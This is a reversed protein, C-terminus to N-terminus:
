GVGLHTVRIMPSQDSTSEQLWLRGAGCKASCSKTLGAHIPAATLQTHWPKDLFPAYGFNMLIRFSELHCKSNPFSSLDNTEPCVMHNWLRERIRTEWIENLCIPTNHKDDWRHSLKPYPEFNNHNFRILRKVNKVPGIEHIWKLKIHQQNRIM